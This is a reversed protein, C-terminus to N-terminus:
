ISGVTRRKRRHFRTQYARSRRTRLGTGLTVANLDLSIGAKRKFLVPIYTYGSSSRSLLVEAAWNNYATPGGFGVTDGSQFSSPVAPMFIRGRGGRGPTLTKRTLIAAVQAPLSASVVTGATVWNGYTKLPTVPLVGQIITGAGAYDNSLCAAYLTRLNTALTASNLNDREDGAGVVSVRFFLTNVVPEGFHTGLISIRYVSNLAM